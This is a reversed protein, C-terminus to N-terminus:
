PNLAQEATLVFNPEVDTVTMGFGAVRRAIERRQDGSV